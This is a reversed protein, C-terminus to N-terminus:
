GPSWAQFSLEQFVVFVHKPGNLCLSTKLFKSPYSFTLVWIEFKFSTVEAEHEMVCCIIASQCCSLPSLGTQRPFKPFIWNARRSPQIGRFLVGIFFGPSFLSNPVSQVSSPNFSRGLGQLLLCWLSIKTSSASSRLPDRQLQDVLLRHVAGDPVSSICAEASPGAGPGPWLLCPFAQYLM